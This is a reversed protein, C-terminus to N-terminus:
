GAAGGGRARQLASVGRHGPGHGHQHDATGPGPLRVSTDRCGGRPPNAPHQAGDAPGAQSLDGGHRARRLRGKGRGVKGAHFLEAAQVPDPGRILRDQEERAPAATPASLGSGCGPRTARTSGTCVGRCQHDADEPGSRRCGAPITGWLGAPRDPLLSGVSPRVEQLARDEPVDGSGQDDTHPLRHLESEECRQGWGEPAAGASGRGSRDPALVPKPLDGRIAADNSALVGLAIVLDVGPDALLRNIGDSVAKETWNGM